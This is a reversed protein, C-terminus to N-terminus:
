LSAGISKCRTETKKFCEDSCHYEKIKGKENLVAWAVTAYPIKGNCGTCNKTSDVRVFKGNSM